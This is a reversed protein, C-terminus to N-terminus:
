EGLNGLGETSMLFIDQRKWPDQEGFSKLLALPPECMCGRHGWSGVLEPNQPTEHIILDVAQEEEAGPDAATM